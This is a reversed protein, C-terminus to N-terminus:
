LYKLPKRKSRYGLLVGLFVLGISIVCFLPSLFVNWDFEHALVLLIALSSLFLGHSAVIIRLIRRILEAYEFDYFAGIFSGLIFLGSLVAVLPSFFYRWSHYPLLSLETVVNVFVLVDAFVTLGGILLIWQWSSLHIEIRQHLVIKRLITGGGGLLGSFVAFFSQFAIISLAWVIGNIGTPSVLALFASFLAFVVFGYFCAQFSREPSLGSFIGVFFGIILPYTYNEVVFPNLDVALFTFWVFWAVAVLLSWVFLIWKREETFVGLFNM